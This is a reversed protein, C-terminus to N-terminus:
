EPSEYLYRDLYKNVSFGYFIGDSYSLNYGDDVGFTIRDDISNGAGVSKDVALGVIIGVGLNVGGKVGEVDDYVSSFNM